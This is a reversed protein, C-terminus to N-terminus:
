CGILLRLQSCFLRFQQTQKTCMGIFDKLAIKCQLRNPNIIVVKVCTAHIHIDGLQTLVQFFIFRDFDDINMSFSIFQDSRFSIGLRSAERTSRVIFFSPQM